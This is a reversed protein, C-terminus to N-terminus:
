VRGPLAQELAAAYLAQPSTYVWFTFLGASLRLAKETQQQDMAWPLAADLNSQETRLRDLWEVELATDWAEEAREVLSLFYDLHRQRAKEAQAPDFTELREFAFQRVLEHIHYRTESESDPLRQILYTETLASLSSLSAGCVVEAAERSFNGRFVALASFVQQDQKGLRQWSSELVARLSRHREALTPASSSLFDISRDIEALLDRATLVRMWSAALEIAM